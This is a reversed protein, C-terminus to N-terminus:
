IRSHFVVETEFYFIHNSNQTSLKRPAQWRYYQFANLNIYMVYYYKGPM